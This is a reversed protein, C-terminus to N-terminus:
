SDFDAEVDTEDQSAPELLAVLADRADEVRLEAAVVAAAAGALSQSTPELLAALADQADKLKIGANAVTAEARAVAQSTPKLLADLADRDDKLALIADAVDAEARALDLATHPDKAKALAEETDQLDVRAQAVAKELTAVTEVDLSALAQGKEVRQGEEVLVEEVTGQAGFSLAERDPFVLSGNVSVENVLNGYQVPILQQDATLETEDADGLLLYVGFTAGIAGVLVAALVGIQWPRLIKFVSWM